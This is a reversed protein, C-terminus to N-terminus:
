AIEERSRGQRAWQFLLFLIYTVIGLCSLLLINTLSLGSTILASVTEYGYFGIWLLPFTVVIISLLDILLFQIINMRGMGAIVYVATRIFPLFRALFISLPLGKESVARVRTFNGPFHRSVTSLLRETYRSGGRALMYLSFDGGLLGAIIALLGDALSLHGHSIASGTLVILVNKSFPFGYTCLFLLVMILVVGYFELQETVQAAFLMHGKLPGEIMVVEKM